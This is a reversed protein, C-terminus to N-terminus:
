KILTEKKMAFIFIINRNKELTSFLLKNAGM